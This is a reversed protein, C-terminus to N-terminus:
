LTQWVSRNTGKQELELTRLICHFNILGAVNGGLENLKAALDNRTDEVIDTSQLLTLDMGEKINCYFVMGQNNVGQPSRVYPEDGVMLGLPYSM